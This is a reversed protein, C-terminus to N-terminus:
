GMVVSYSIRGSLALVLFSCTMLRLPDAHHHYRRQIAPEARTEIDPQAPLIRCNKASAGIRFAPAWIM